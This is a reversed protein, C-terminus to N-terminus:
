SKDSSGTLNNYLYEATKDVASKLIDSVETPRKNLFDAIKDIPKGQLFRAVFVRREVTDLIDLKIKDFHKVLVDSVADPFQDGLMYRNLRRLDDSVSCARVGNKSLSELIWVIKETGLDRYYVHSTFWLIQFLCKGADVVIRTAEDKLPKLVVVNKEGTVKNYRPSIYIPVYNNRLWFRITDFGSFIAGILDIDNSEREIMSLMYSGVGRRQLPPTVAIRVVRLIKRGKVADLLGYRDLKDTILYRPDKSIENSTINLPVKEIRTQAVGIIDGEGDKIVFIDFYDTDLMLVLDDPENRYHATVLLGYVSRLLEYNDVLEDLALKTFSLPKKLYNKELPETDLHFIKYFAQELPDGQYYRIPTSLKQISTKHFLERVLKLLVRGSGEYGHITTSAVIKGVENYWKRVRSIGVGAAEDIFLPVDFDTDSVNWSEVFRISASGITVGKILGTNNKIIGPRVGLYSLAKSLLKFFSQVGYISSSTVVYKGRRKFLTYAALIGMVSSKGRGRDGYILYLKNKGYLFSPYNRIILAQEGSVALEELKRVIKDKSKPRPKTIPHPKENKLNIYLVTGNKIVLVNECKQLVHLFYRGFRSNSLREPVQILYFGGKAVFEMSLALLNGPWGNLDELFFAVNSYEEGLLKHAERLTISKICINENELKEPKKSICLDLVLETEKLMDLTKDLNDVIFIFGRWGTEKLHDTFSNMTKMIKTIDIPEQMSM